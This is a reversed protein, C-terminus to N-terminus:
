CDCVFASSPATLPDPSRRAPGDDTVIELGERVWYEFGGIMEKVQYGLLAFALAAKTGGNCAPGWCYVVVPRDIPVEDLAETGIRGTPLHIAGPVRGGNWAADGRSDVLTFGDPDAARAAFVDSPDTEFALKRRFFAAASENVPTAASASGSIAPTITM